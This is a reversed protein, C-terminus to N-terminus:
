QWLADTTAIYPMGGPLSTWLARELPFEVCGVALGLAVLEDCNRHEGWQDGDASVCMNLFTMGGGGKKVYRDSHFDPALEKLTAKISETAAALKVSNFGVQMQVSHVKVVPPATSKLAGNEIDSDDYLCALMLAKVRTATLFKEKPTDSVTHEGQTLLLHSLSKLFTDNLPRYSNIDLACDHCYYMRTSHNYWTAGPAQCATRNCNKGFVGKLAAPKDQINNM